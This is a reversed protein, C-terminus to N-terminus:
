RSSRPPLPTIAGITIPKHQKWLTILYALFEKSIGRASADLQKYYWDLEEDESNCHLGGPAAEHQLRTLESFVFERALTCVKQHERNWSRIFAWCLSALLILWSVWHHTTTYGFLDKWALLAAASSATMVWIWDKGISEVPDWVYAISM